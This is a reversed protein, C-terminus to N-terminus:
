IGLSSPCGVVRRESESVLSQPQRSLVRQLRTGNPTFLRRVGRRRVRRKPMPTPLELCPLCVCGGAGAAFVGLQTKLSRFWDWVGRSRRVRGGGWAGEAEGWAGLKAEVWTTASSCRVLSAQSAAASPSGRSRATSGSRRRPHQPRTTRTHADSPRTPPPCPPPTPSTQSSLCSLRSSSQCRYQLFRYIKPKVPTKFPFDTSSPRPPTNQSPSNAESLPNEHCRSTLYLLTMSGPCIWAMEALNGNHEGPREGPREGSVGGCRRSPASLSSIGVYWAYHPSPQSMKKPSHDKGRLLRQNPNKAKVTKEM